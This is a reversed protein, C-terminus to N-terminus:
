PSKPAFDTAPSTTAGRGGGGGGPAQPAAPPAQRPAPTQGGQTRVDTGFTVLLLGAVLGTFVFWVRRTRSELSRRTM